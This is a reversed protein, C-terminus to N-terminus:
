PKKWSTIDKNEGEGGEQGDAGLSSLDFKSGHKGPFVYVYPRGWPDTLMSEKVYPGKWKGGVASPAELLAKLGEEQTPYRGINLRFVDLKSSINEIQVAAADGQAGGLTGLLAPAALTVLLGLIMLVVLLEILTFGFDSRVATKGYICPM